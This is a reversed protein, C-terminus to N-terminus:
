LFKRMQLDRHIEMFYGAMRTDNVSFNGIYKNHFEQYKSKITSHPNLYIGSGFINYIMNRSSVM